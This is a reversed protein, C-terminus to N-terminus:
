CCRWAARHYRPTRRRPLDDNSDSGGSAQCWASAKAATGTYNTFRIVLNDVSEDAALTFLDDNSGTSVIQSDFLISNYDLAM